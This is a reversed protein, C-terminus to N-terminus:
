TSVTLMYFYNSYIMVISTLIIIIKWIFYHIWTSIVLIFLGTTIRGDLTSYFMAEPFQRQVKAGLKDNEPFVVMPHLLRGSASACCLATFQRKTDNVLEYPYKASNEQVCVENFVLSFGTEDCNFICERQVQQLVNMATLLFM